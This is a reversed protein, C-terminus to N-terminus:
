ILFQIAAQRSAAYEIIALPAGVIGTGSATGRLPERRWHRSNAGTVASSVSNVAFLACETASSLASVANRAQAGRGPAPFQHVSARVPEATALTVQKTLETLQKAQDALRELQSRNHSASLELFETPSKVGAVKQLFEVHSKANAQAFEILKSNYDQMGKLAASCCNTM